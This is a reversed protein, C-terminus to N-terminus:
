SDTRNSPPGRGTRQSLVDEYVREVQAAVTSAFFRRARLRGDSGMAERRAPDALLADIAAGLAIPDGPPVLLGTEGPVVIDALGGIDSAIVAKGAAMGEVAVQGFPEAWTSPVVGLTCHAWAGMVVDHGAGVVLTVDSSLEPPSRVPPTAIVVLPVRRALRAHAALLVDFGKNRGLGGVYLLYEGKPPAFAPRPANRAVDAVRDPVFSPIVDIPTRRTGLRHDSAKAVTRSVAIFRDVESHMPNSVRLGSTVGLAKVSGMAESACRVCKRYGPGSCFRGKHVYTRKACVLGYDHLTVIMAANSMRKLPLASYIIWGRGHLIDPRERKLVGYLGMMVGPDPVTPHFPREPSQYFPRLARNFGAIRHVHVGEDMELPPSGQRELTAVAVHHGRRVLERSLSQVHREMGGIVPPYFDSLSLIRM